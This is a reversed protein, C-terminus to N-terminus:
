IAQVRAFPQRDSNAGHYVPSKDLTHWLAGHQKSFETWLWNPTKLFYFSCAGCLEALDTLKDTHKKAQWLITFKREPPQIM